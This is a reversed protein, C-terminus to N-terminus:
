KSEKASQFYKKGPYVLCTLRGNPRLGCATDIFARDKFIRPSTTRGAQHGCVKFKHVEKVILNEDTFQWKLESLMRDLLYRFMPDNARDEYDEKYDMGGYMQVISMDLPAHTAIVEETEYYPITRSTIEQFGRALLAESITEPEIDPLKWDQAWMNLTPEIYTFWAQSGTILYDRLMYDHNGEVFYVQKPHKKALAIITEISLTAQSGRDVLDGCFVIHDNEGLQAEIQDIVSLLKDAENHVDGILFIKDPTHLPRKGYQISSM